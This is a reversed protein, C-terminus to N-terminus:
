LKALFGKKGLFDLCEQISMYGYPESTFDWVELKDKGNGYSGFHEVISIRANHNEVIIQYGNFLPKYTHEVSLQLLREHLARISLYEM